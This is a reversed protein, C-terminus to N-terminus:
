LKIISFSKVFGNGEEMVQLFYRGAPLSSIDLHTLSDLIRGYSIRAGLSNFLSYSIPKDVPALMRLDLHDTCPVPFVSLALPTGFAEPFGTVTLKDLQQFGQTLYNSASKLTLVVSEGCTWSIQATSSQGQGGSSALATRSISQANLPQLCAFFVAAFVFVFSNKKMAM